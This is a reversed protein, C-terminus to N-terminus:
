TWPVVFSRYPCSWRSRGYSELSSTIWNLVSRVYRLTGRDFGGNCWNRYLWKQTCYAHEQPISIDTYRSVRFLSIRSKYVKITLWTFLIHIGGHTYIPIKTICTWGCVCACMYLYLYLSFSTFHLYNLAYM